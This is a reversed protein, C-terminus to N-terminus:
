PQVAAAAAVMLHPDVVAVLVSSKFEIIQV